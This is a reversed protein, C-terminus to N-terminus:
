RNTIKIYRAITNKLGFEFADCVLAHGISVELISPIKKLLFVLNNLNLDHGANIGINPITKIFEVVNIYPEISKESNDNYKKAYDFTYLEVRDTKIDYLNELTKNSPNIFLSVRINNNKFEGVVDTLLNKNESCNWGFSSTVADPPDPVLTVQDPKIENIIKCFKDSPFGEINFEIKKEINKITQSLLYLDSYKVHREDNRPHVTIGEAGYKICRKCMDILDPYNTGRSNRILAFKNINISLLTM